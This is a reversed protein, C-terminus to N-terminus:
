VSRVPSRCQGRVEVWVNMSKPVQDTHPPVCFVSGSDGSHKVKHPSSMDPLILPIRSGWGGPHSVPQETYCCCLVIQHCDWIPCILYSLPVGPGGDGPHFIPQETYCCCLVIQHCGPANALLPQSCTCSM